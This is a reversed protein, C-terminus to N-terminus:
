KRFSGRVNNFSFCNLPFIYIYILTQRISEVNTEEFKSRKRIKHVNLFCKVNKSCKVNKKKSEQYEFLIDFTVTVLQFIVILAIKIYM